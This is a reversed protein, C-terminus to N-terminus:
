LGLWAKALINRQVEDSGGYITTKRYNLYRAGLGAVLAEFEEQPDDDLRSKYQGQPGVAALMLETLMQQIQTGKIKLLSVEPGPPRGTRRMRDLFRLNTLELAALEVEVRSIRDRFRTNEYLPRGGDSQARALEKLRALQRKSGGIRGSNMREYGLLYKAVTWGKNEEHVLNGAPVRVGDFFVENVEHTGDMLILPRITIGPSKMDILLFSIGEQKKAAGPDTRVLCFMWDAWQAYTTWIKQGTVVYHDGDRVARTKLAALDSGAGPESYGQCWFEEGSHIKPLFRAKQAQTGFQLLVPACMMLALAPIPPTGAYGCEEEFMYRQVVNWGPGGWEVPWHPAIWGKGSLIAHWRRVDEKELEAYRAVKAKLDAPLNAALWERVEDRFALEEASFNLDM